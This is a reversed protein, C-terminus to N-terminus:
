VGYNIFGTGRSGWGLPLLCCPVQTKNNQTECMCHQHRHPLKYEMIFGHQAEFTSGQPQAYENGCCVRLSLQRGAMAPALWVLCQLQDSGIHSRIIVPPHWDPFAQLARGWRCCFGSRPGQVGSRFGPGPDFSSRM